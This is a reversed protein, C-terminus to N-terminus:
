GTPRPRRTPLRGPRSTSRRSRSAEISKAFRAPIRPSSAGRLTSSRSRAGGTRISCSRAREIGFDERFRSLIGPDAGTWSFISQEDDGVGFLNRHDAVLAKSSATSRRTSIRSSTWWCTTGVAACRERSRRTPASSIRPSASSVTSTWWTAAAAPDRQVRDISISIAAPSSTDRCATAASSASCRAGAAQTPVRLRRLM